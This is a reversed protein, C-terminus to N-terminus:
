LNNTRSTRFIRYANKLIYHGLAYIDYIDSGLTGDCVHGSWNGAWLGGVRSKSKEEMVGIESTPVQSYRALGKRM